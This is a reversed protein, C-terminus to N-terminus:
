KRAEAPTKSHLHITLIGTHRGCANQPRATEVQMRREVALVRVGARIDPDGTSSYNHFSTHSLFTDNFFLLVFRFGTKNFQQTQLFAFIQMKLKELVRPRVPHKVDYLTEFDSVEEGRQCLGGM